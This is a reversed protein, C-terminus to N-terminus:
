VVDSSHISGNLPEVEMESVDSVLTTSTFTRHAQPASTTSTLSSAMSVSSPDRELNVAEDATKRYVPNDFNISQLSKYWFKKYVALGVLAALVLCGAVVGIVVGALFGANQEGRSRIKSRASSASPSEGNSTSFTRVGSHDYSDTVNFKDRFMQEPAKKTQDTIVNEQRAIDHKFSPAGLYKIPAVYSPDHICNLGDKNMKLGHPCACSTKASNKTLQPAPLCIHSCRGNLPLCHNLADPQRYPHYVHVVMPIEKMKSTTVPAANKGTFKDAKFIANRDWDSWYIWDSFVTISFPHKLMEPSYLVVRSNAGDLDASGVLNLKADIWYIRDMVLDLTLGNPWRVTDTIIATRHSGDMGAREIKPKDGWDSWFMWGKAPYLAIARPEELDDKIITTVLNGDMNSLCISNTGTDTWYLHNYIWDVALGDATIINHDIVVEKKDGEDIPAKYIKKTMVDSWYIMGTRFDFDIACSSRTDNVISVMDDRDLSIKRIDSKHAFLLSAHGETPRCRTHDHPDKMYGTICDCKFSGERNICLQSCMGPINCENVDKCTTNGVLKYGDKCACKYGIPLDICQQDCGGGVIDVTAALLGETNHSSCENVGCFEKPEDRWNGCDNQGNCVRDLPICMKGDGGCDFESNVDCGIEPDRCHLEDSGDVCEQDGSCQLHGPICDGNDCRFQDSRCEQVTGCQQASEDSGDPCDTDGDCLWTTHICYFRNLCQFENASCNTFTKNYTLETCDVEDSADPCDVDGDCRWRKTICYGDGCAFDNDKDCKHEPCKQEDSGDGCDDEHDCLWRKQICKGNDCTFEDQTCTQTCVEEDSKDDCDDHDDCVWSLPICQGKNSRCTWEEPGCTREVCLEQSEDSKDDCDPEGDCQWRSPICRGSTCAFEVSSCTVNETCETHEDSRDGCDDEGDCTWSLPICKENTCQFEQSSCPEGKVVTTVSLLHVLFTM